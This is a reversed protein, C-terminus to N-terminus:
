GSPAREVRTESACRHLLYELDVADPNRLRARPPSRPFTVAHTIRARSGDSEEYSAHSYLATRLYSARATSARWRPHDNWKAFGCSKAPTAPVLAYANANTRRFYLAGGGISIATRVGGSAASPEMHAATLADLSYGHLQPRGAFVRGAPSRPSRWAVTEGHSFIGARGSLADSQSGQAAGETRSAGRNPLAHRSPHTGV